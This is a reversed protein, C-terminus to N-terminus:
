FDRHETLLTAAWFLAAAVGLSALTGQWPCGELFGTARNVYEGGGLLDSMRFTPFWRYLYDQATFTFYLCLVGLAAAGYDSPLLSSCFLGVGLFVLGAALLLVSFRAAEWPPYSRGTFRSAIPIVIVPVLALGAAEAAAVAARAAMWRRRSVPLSLTYQATGLARERMLGGLGLFLASLAWVVQFQGAFLFSVYRTYTIPPRTDYRSMGHGANLIAWGVVLGIAAASALFRIRSEQWTKRWIM